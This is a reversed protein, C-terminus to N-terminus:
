LRVHCGIIRFGNHCIPTHRNVWTSLGSIDHREIDTNDNSIMVSLIKSGSGNSSTGYSDRFELRFSEFELDLNLVVFFPFLLVVFDGLM